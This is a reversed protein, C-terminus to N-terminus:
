AIHVKLHFFTKGFLINQHRLEAISSHSMRQLWARASGLFTARVKFHFNPRSNENQLGAIDCVRMGLRLVFELSEGELM